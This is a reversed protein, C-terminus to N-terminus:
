LAYAAISGRRQDTPSFDIEPLSNIKGADIEAMRQEILPSGFQENKMRLHHQLYRSLVDKVEQLEAETGIEDAAAGIHTPGRFQEDAAIEGM